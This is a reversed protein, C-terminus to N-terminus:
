WCMAGAQNGGSFSHTGQGVSRAPLLSTASLFQNGLHNGLNGLQNGLQNGFHNGVQNGFFQSPRAGVLGVGADREFKDVVGHELSRQVLYASIFLLRVSKVRHAQKKHGNSVSDSYRGIQYAYAPFTIYRHM